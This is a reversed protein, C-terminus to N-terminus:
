PAGNEIEAAMDRLEQRRIKGSGTRPVSDVQTFGRPMHTLPLNQRLHAMVRGKDFSVGPKMKYFVHPVKGYRPLNVPWVAVDEFLETEMLSSAILPTSVKQGGSKFVDDMRGTVYLCGDSDKFGLDGTWFVNGRLCKETEDPAAHYGDFLLAGTVTIQGQVDPELIEEGADDRITVNLGSIPTGVSGIKHQLLDPDLFCLRGGVETLGYVTHLKTDSQHTLWTEIVETSLRDGSSMAFRLPLRGESAAIEALWRLQIPAGGFCTAGAEKVADYLSRQLLVSETGIFVAGSVMATVFHHIASTFHLPISVFLRDGARMQLCEQAGLVNGLFSRHSLVVGKPFGTSGSTFLIAATDDPTGSPDPLDAIEDQAVHLGRVDWPAVVPSTVDMGSVINDAGIIAKPESVRIMSELAVRGARPDFPVPICGNLWISLYDLLTSAGGGSAIMVTGEAIGLDTFERRRQGIMRLVTAADISTGSFEICAGNGRERLALLLAEQM